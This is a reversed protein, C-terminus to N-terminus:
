RYLRRWYNHERDHEEKRVQAAEPTNYDKLRERVYDRIWQPTNAAAKEVAAWIKRAEPTDARAVPRCPM